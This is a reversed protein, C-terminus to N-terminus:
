SRCGSSCRPPSGPANACRWCSRSIPWRPPPPTKAPSPTPSSPSRPARKWSRGTPPSARSGRGTTSYGRGEGHCGGTRKRAFTGGARPPRLRRPKSRGGGKRPLTPTPPTRPVRGQAAPVGWGPGGGCPPLSLQEPPPSAPSITRSRRSRRWWPAGHRRGSGRAPLGAVGYRGPRRLPAGGGRGARRLPRPRLVPRARRRLGPGGDRAMQRRAVPRQPARRSRVPRAPRVRRSLRPHLRLLGGPLPDERGSRAGSGQDPRHRHLRRRHNRIRRLIQRRRRARRRAPPPGGTGSLRPDRLRAPPRQRGPAGRDEADLPGVAALAIPPAPLGLKEPTFEPTMLTFNYYKGRHDLKEGTEWTRFIARLAAIYEGM